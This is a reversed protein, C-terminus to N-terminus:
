SSDHVVQETIDVGFHEQLVSKIREGESNGLNAMCLNACETVLLDSFIKLKEHGLHYMRQNPSETGEVFFAEILLKEWTQM